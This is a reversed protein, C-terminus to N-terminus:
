VIEEEKKKDKQVGGIILALIAYWLLGKGTNTIAGLIGKPQNAYAVNAQDIAKDIEEQPTGMDSLFTETSRISEEFIEQEWTVDIFSLFFINFVLVIIASVIGTFFAANFANGFTYPSFNDKSNRAGLIMFVIPLALFNVTLLTLVGMPKAFFLPDYAYIGLFILISIVGMRLGQDISPKYLDIM